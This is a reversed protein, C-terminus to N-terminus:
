PSSDQPHSRRGARGRRWCSPCTLARPIGLRWSICSTVESLRTCSPRLPSSRPLCTRQSSPFSSLSLSSSVSCYFLLFPRLSKGPNLSWSHTSETSNCMLCVSQVSVDGDAVCVGDIVCVRDQFLSLSLCVNHQM